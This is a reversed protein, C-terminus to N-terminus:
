ADTDAEWLDGQLIDRVMDVALYCAMLSLAPHAAHYAAITKVLAEFLPQAEDCCADFAEPTLARLPKDESPAPRRATLHFFSHQAM